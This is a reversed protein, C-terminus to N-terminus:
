AQLSDREQKLINEINLTDMRDTFRQTKARDLNWTQARVYCLDRIVTAIRKSAFGDGYPSISRGSKKKKKQVIRRIASLIKTKQTGVLYIEGDPRDTEERLVIVPKNLSVAEEQIGGSDTAVLDAAELVYVLDQYSLPSTMLIGPMKGLGVEQIAAGIVPNPHVPFLVYLQPNELLAKKIARFILQLGGDFSERRHATLLLIKKGLSRQQEIAERIQPSVSITGLDLKKKIKFLSDVVTNGSLFIQEKQTGEQLLDSRARRTPAFHYSAILSIVRRNMEEPFPGHINKTRLGAEVHAIPIKLYFAAMAASMASTTDGQVVVLSPRIEKFLNGSKELVTNTIHFLDQDPRMINFNFHSKVKFLKFVDESLQQHQGTSCLLTPVGEKKLAFYLPILKIAEPRTGVMLIVPHNKSPPEMINEM